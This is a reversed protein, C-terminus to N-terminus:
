GERYSEIQRDLLAIRTEYNEIIKVLRAKEGRSVGDEAMAVKLSNVHNKLWSREAEQKKYINHRYVIWSEGIYRFINLNFIGTLINSVVDPVLNGIFQAQPAGTEDLLKVDSNAEEIKKINKPVNMLGIKNYLGSIDSSVEDVNDRLFDIQYGLVRLGPATIAKSVATFMYLSFRAINDIRYAAGYVAVDSTKLNDLTSTKSANAKSYIEILNDLVNEARKTAYILTSFPASQESQKAPRKLKSVYARYWHVPAVKADMMKISQKIRELEKVTFDGVMTSFTNLDTKLYQLYELFESNKVTVDRFRKSKVFQELKKNM